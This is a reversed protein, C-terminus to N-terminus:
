IDDVKIADKEFYPLCERCYKYSLQSFAKHIIGKSNKRYFYADDLKYKGNCRECYYIKTM